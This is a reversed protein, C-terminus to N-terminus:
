ICVLGTKGDLGAQSSVASGCVEESLSHFLVPFFFTSIFAPTLFAFPHHSFPHASLVSGFKQFREAAGEV